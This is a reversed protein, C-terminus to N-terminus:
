SKNVQPKCFTASKPPGIAFVRYIESNLYRLIDQDL